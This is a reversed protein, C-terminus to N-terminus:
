ALLDMVDWIQENLTNKIFFMPNEQYHTTTSVLLEFVKMEIAPHLTGEETTAFVYEHITMCLQPKLKDSTRTLDCAIVIMKQDMMSSQSRGSSAHSPNILGRDHM